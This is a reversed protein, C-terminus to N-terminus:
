GELLENIAESLTDRDRPGDYRVGNLFLTPTGNVGDNAGNRFDENVHAIYRQEDMEHDFRGIELGIELAYRRLDTVELHQQNRLLLDQMEWFKGQAGAVEAALAAAQARPHLSTIPFHRFVFRVRDPYQALVAKIEPHAQGCYSCELDGYELLTVPADAPGISWDDPTVESRMTRDASRQDAQLTDLADFVINLSPSIGPHEGVWTERILGDKDIFFLARESVGEKPRLVGYREAIAGHPWQDSLLPFTIHHQEAWAKHSWRGDVSIGIVEASRGRIDDLTEQYLSLQSTCVSSWDAPYFALVVHKGRFDSLSVPKGEADPLTFDPAPTNPQLMEAM